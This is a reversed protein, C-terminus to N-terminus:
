KSHDFHDLHGNGFPNYPDGLVSILGLCEVSTSSECNMTMTMYIGKIINNLVFLTNTRQKKYKLKISSM